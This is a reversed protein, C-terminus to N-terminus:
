QQSRQDDEDDDEADGGSDSGQQSAAPSSAMNLPTLPEDLGPLPNMNEQVRAENRTKWGGTIGINHSEYRSKMDGRLLADVLVEVFYSSESPGLLKRKTEQEWRVFWPLLTDTVYEISQHEINGFTSRLLHQIKHPPMRFWRAVDEVQFQRTELMQAENPATSASEWKMNEELIGPKHANELGSAMEGFQNRLRAIAEPSLKGPHSLYGSARAGNAFFKAAFRQSALTLGLAERGVKTVMEGVVGDVSFGRVHLMDELNIRDKGDVLYYLAGGPDRKPEVRWPEIPWLARVSQNNRREIEAYGRGFLVACATVAQKFDIPNMEPNPRDHLIEYLPHEVAREKGNPDLRRYVLMPLKGVDESINRVCAFVASASMATQETVVVGAASDPVQLWRPDNAVSEGQYVAGRRDPFVM